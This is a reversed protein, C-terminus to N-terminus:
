LLREQGAAVLRETRELHPKLAVQRPLIMRHRSEKRGEISESKITGGHRELTAKLQAKAGDWCWGGRPYYNRFAADLESSSHWRGDKLVEYVRRKKTDRRAWRDGEQPPSEARTANGSICARM